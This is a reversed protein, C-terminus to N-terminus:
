VGAMSMWLMQRRGDEAMGDTRRWALSDEAM